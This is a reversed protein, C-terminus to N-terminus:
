HTFSLIFNRFRMWGMESLDCHAREAITLYEITHDIERMATVFVDSHRHIAVAQDETCHAIFYPIRPMNMVQHFPSATELAREFPMDYGSFAHYLTRPLDRRETFHYPLDCVPCNAACARPTRAAYRAYILASLGGMSGGSSIIPVNEDLSYKKFITDLIADVLRVASQNMWSWPGYYPFVYLVNHRAYYRAAETHEYIMDHFGLGHFDLLVAKWPQDCLDENTYAFLSLNNTNIMSM